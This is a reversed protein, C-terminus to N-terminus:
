LELSAEMNLRKDPLNIFEPDSRVGMVWLGRLAEDRRFRACDAM